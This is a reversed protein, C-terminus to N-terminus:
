RNISIFPINLRPKCNDVLILMSEDRLYLQSIVFEHDEEQLMTNFVRINAVSYPGSILQWQSDTSVNQDIELSHTQKTVQTLGNWNKANAPDQSFGYIYLAAQKYEASIPIIISYWTDPSYTVPTFAITTANITLSITLQSGSTTAIVKIGTQSLNDYGRFITFVATSPSFKFLATVTTNKVDTANAKYIMASDRGKFSVKAPQPPNAVTYIVPTQNVPVLNTKSYASIVIERGIIPDFTNDPGKIGIYHTNTANSNTNLDFPNLFGFRWAKYIQSNEAAVVMAPLGAIAQNDMSTVSADLDFTVIPSQIVNLDYYYQVLPSYNYTLDAQKVKLQRNVQDRTEDQFMSITKYQKPMTSNKTDDSTPKAFLTEASTILNQIANKDSDRLETDAHQQFKILQIKWYIPQYMLGRYLYCSKIEYMRNMIPIYMFDRVRPEAGRGFIQQYYQNDIQIEFPAVFDVGFDSFQPKNDPFENNPVMIKICRRDVTNFLTWEKFIFDGSNKDPLTRFYVVQHGYVINTQYSLAKYVDVLAGVQYPQFQTAAAAIYAPSSEIGAEFSPSFSYDPQPQQETTNIRIQISDVQVVETLLNFTGDDYTYKVDFYLPLTSDFYISQLNSLNSPDVDYWLSWSYRDTSYRLQRFVNSSSNGNLTLDDDFGDITFPFSISDKQSFIRFNKSTSISNSDLNPVISITVKPM